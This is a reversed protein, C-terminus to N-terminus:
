KSVEWTKKWQITQFNQRFLSRTSCSLDAPNGCGIGFHWRWQAVFKPVAHIMSKSLSLKTLIRLLPKTESELWNGTSGHGVVEFIGGPEFNTLLSEFVIMKRRQDLDVVCETHTIENFFRQLKDQTHRHNLSAYRPMNPRNYWTVNKLLYPDPGAFLEENYFHSFTILFLPSIKWSVSKIWFARCSVPHPLM